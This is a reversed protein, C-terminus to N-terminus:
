VKHSWSIIDSLLEESLFDKSVAGKMRFGYKLRNSIVSIM